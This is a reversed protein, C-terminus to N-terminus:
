DFSKFRFSASFLAEVRGPGGQYSKISLLDSQEDSPQESTSLHPHHTGRFRLYLATHKGGGGDVGEGCRVRAGAEEHFWLTNRPSTTKQM